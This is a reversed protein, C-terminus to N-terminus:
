FVGPVFRATKGHWEVWVRGFLEKLMGEEQVVRERVIYVLGGLVVPLMPSWMAAQAGDTRCFLWLHACVLTVFSTYAPHQVWAYVGATQLGSPAALAFTFNRGLHAYALLRLPIAGLLLLALPVATAPSWTLLAPNIGNAVGHGPLRAPRAPDFRLATLATYLALTLTPALGVAASYSRTLGLKQFLDSSPASDSAVAASPHPPSMAVFSGWAAALFAVALSVQSLPPM